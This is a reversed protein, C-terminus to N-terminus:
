INIKGCLLKESLRHIAQVGAKGVLATTQAQAKEWAVMGKKLLRKGKETVVLVHSRDDDGPETRLWGRGILRNINRSMTSADIKLAKCLECSRCGGGVTLHVLINMQGVRMDIGEHRLAEDYISMVVRHMLRLRGALCEAALVNACDCANTPHTM